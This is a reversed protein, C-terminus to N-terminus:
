GQKTRAIFRVKVGTLMAMFYCCVDKEGPMKVEIEFDKILTPVVKGVILEALNRGPCTRAGGGWILTCREMERARTEDLWREPNFVEADDGFIEPNRHLSIPNCGVITGPPFYRDDLHLGTAPVTRSLSMGIVPHLRQSEKITAQIYLLNKDASYSVPGNNASSRATRNVIKDQVNQHSGIMALASVLTSTTTEHGAGFNTMIMRKLYDASFEPKEKHVQILESALDKRNDKPPDPRLSLAIRRSTKNGLIPFLAKFNAPPTFTLGWTKAFTRGLTRSYADMVEAWPFLGFVSKRRWGLYAHSGSGHDTGDRLFGPSWSLVVATLCEVTIIHMWEKLDVEAGQLGKLREVAKILVDDIAKEHKSLNRKQYIPGILRRQLRYRDMDFEGLLDLTDPFTLQLSATVQPRNLALAVYFDSKEYGQTASYIKNFPEKSNLWVENPGVRVVPGYQKHLTKGLELMLGNRAHYAHWINSIAAFRPGPVGALPHLYLRYALIISLLGFATLTAKLATTCLM